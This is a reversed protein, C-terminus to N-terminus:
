CDNDEIETGDDCDPAEYDGDAQHLDIFEQSLFTVSGDNEINAWPKNDPGILQDTSADHLYEVGEHIYKSYENEDPELDDPYVDQTADPDEEPQVSSNDASTDASTDAPTDASTDAPTDTSTDASTDASNDASTDAQAEAIKKLMNELKMRGAKKQFLKFYTDRAIAIESQEDDTSSKKPSSKKTSSKKTSSKKTSSKKPGDSKTITVLKWQLGRPTINKRLNKEGWSDQHTQYYSKMNEFDNDTLSEHPKQLIASIDSPIDISVSSNDQPTDSSDNSVTVQTDLNKAAVGDPHPPPMASYDVPSDRSEFSLLADALFHDFVLDIGPSKSMSIYLKWLHYQFKDQSSLSSLNSSDISHFTDSTMVTHTSSM